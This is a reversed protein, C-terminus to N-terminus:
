KDELFNDLLKTIDNIQKYSIEVYNYKNKIAYDKKIGDLRQQEAFKIEGGFRKVPKYHQIGQFEILTNKAPIYFDFPLTNNIGRCDDFRKQAEFIINNNKLYNEIAIEGKSYHCKPCGHKGNIHKTPSQEFIGHKPCIIKVKSHCSIYKVISYDYKDGHILKAKKVFQETSNKTKGYCYPCGEGNLHNNPFQEFVNNCKNCKIKIKTRQNIYNVLSYDYLNEFIKKSEKIFEANSKRCRISTHENKCKSCGCGSLHSHANQEFVGHKPCIIKIKDSMSIFDTISYDYKNGHIKNAMNIFKKTNYRNGYCYPCQHGSLFYDTRIEFMSCCKKCIIKIRTKSGNYKLLSFDYSDGYLKNSKQIITENTYKM